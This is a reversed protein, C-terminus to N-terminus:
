CYLTLFVVCRFPTAGKQMLLSVVKTHGNLAAGHLPTQGEGDTDNVSITGGNSLLRKCTM